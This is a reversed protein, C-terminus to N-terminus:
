YATAVTNKYAATMTATSGVNYIADGTFSIKLLDKPMPRPMARYNLTPITLTLSYYQAPSTGTIAESSTIVVTLSSATGNIFKTWETVDEVIITGSVAVKFGKSYIKTAWITNGVVHEAAVDNQISIKLEETDLNSSGGLTIAAQDFKFPRLASFSTTQTAGAANYLLGVWEADVIVFEGKKIDFDLKNLMCGSHEPYDPGNKQWFSYSPLSASSIRTFAHSWPATATTSDSTAAIASASDATFGMTTLATISANTGTTTKLVFVGSDETITMKKTSFSYTVTYTHATGNGAEIIDKVLKCFSGAVASSAGMAYTGPTLFVTVESGGDETFDIADNSAVFTVASTSTQSAAATADAKAWGILAYAGKANNTGTNWLLTVTSASPTITFKKTTSNFAVTYTVTTQNASELQTKIETCLSYATYAGPTLTATKETGAGEIFDISDNVNVTVTFVTHGTVTYSAVEAPTDTGFAAMLTNGLNEPEVELKLKGSKLQAPGQAWKKNIDPIGQVGQGIIPTIDTSFDFPPVFRLFETPAVFTGLQSEKAIGCAGLEGIYPM